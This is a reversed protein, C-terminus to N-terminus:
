LVPGSIPPITSQPLLMGFVNNRTARNEQWLLDARPLYATRALDIGARVAEAQARAARLAPYNKVALEIAQDLTLPRPPSEQSFSHHASALLVFSILFYRLGM